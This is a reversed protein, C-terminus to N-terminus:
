PAWYVQVPTIAQQLV